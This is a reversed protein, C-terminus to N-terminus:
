GDDERWGVAGTVVYDFEAATQIVLVQLAKGGLGTSVLVRDRVVRQM